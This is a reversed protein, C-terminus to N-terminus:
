PKQKSALVSSEWDPLSSFRLYLGPSSRAHCRPNCTIVEKHLVSEAGSSETVLSPLLHNILCSLKGEESAPQQEVEQIFLDFMQTEVFKKVFHRTSKSDLAKCFARRQFLAPEGAKRLIHQSFHGVTKIFFPFFAAPVVRNLEEVAASLACSNLSEIWSTQM